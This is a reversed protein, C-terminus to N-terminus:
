DTDKSTQEQNLSEFQDQLKKNLNVMATLQSKSKELSKQAEQLVTKGNSRM